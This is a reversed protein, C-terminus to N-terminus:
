NLRGDSMHLCRHAAKQAAEDHTVMLVARGDRALDSLHSLVIEANERDLNGTPEDALILKPEHLLARALATRQREGTSLDAPVHDKRHELNFRRILEM